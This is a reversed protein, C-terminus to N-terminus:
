SIASLRTHESRSITVSQHGTALIIDDFIFAEGSELVLPFKGEVSEVATVRANFRIFHRM